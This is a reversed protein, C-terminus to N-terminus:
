EVAHTKLLMQVVRTSRRHHNPWHQRWALEDCIRVVASHERKMRLEAKGIAGRRHLVHTSADIDSQIIAFTKTTITTTATTTITTTAVVAACDCAATCACAVVFADASRHGEHQRTRMQPPRTAVTILWEILKARRQVCGACAIRGRRRRRQRWWEETAHAHARHLQHCLGRRRGRGAGRRALGEIEADVAHGHKCLAGVQDGRVDKRRPLAVFTPRPQQLHGGLSLHVHHTDPATPPVLAVSEVVLAIREAKEHPLLEHECAREVRPVFCEQLDLRADAKHVGLGPSKANPIEISCPEKRKNGRIVCRAKM